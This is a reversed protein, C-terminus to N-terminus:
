PQEPLGAKALIVKIDEVVQPDEITGPLTFKEGNCIARLINRLIKGSRTKPLKQVVVAMKLSAWPGINARILASVEKSATAEDFGTELVILAIPVEGKMANKTGFCACEVVADHNAVVEELQGTSLRHGSVNIVDDLRGLITVHGDKDITGLDSTNYYGPFDDLYASHYLTDNNYVTTLAGPPLPLKIAIAGETDPETIEKGTVPDMVRVDWGPLPLGTSGPPCPQSTYSFGCIPTGTETQWWNDVVDTGARDGLAAQYFAMTDPDAREGAVFLTRLSKVDYKDLFNLNPDAARIARLATPATFLVSVRYKQIIEWYVSANPTGVPKGEFLVTSSGNLLPGFVTFSHGVVWGIDAASWYVEAEKM